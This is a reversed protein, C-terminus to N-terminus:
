AKTNLGAVYNLHKKTILHKAKYSRRFKSGCECTIPKRAEEMCEAIWQQHQRHAEEKEEETRNEKRSMEARHLHRMLADIETSENYPTTYDPLSM